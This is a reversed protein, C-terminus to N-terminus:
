QLCYNNKKEKIWEDIYDEIFGDILDIIKRKWKMPLPM